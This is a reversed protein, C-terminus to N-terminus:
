SESLIPRFVNSIKKIPENIKRKNKKKRNDDIKIKTSKHLYVYLNFIFYQFSIFRYFHGARPTEVM